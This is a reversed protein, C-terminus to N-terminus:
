FREDFDLVVFLECKLNQVSISVNQRIGEELFMVNVCPMGSCSRLVLGRSANEAERNKTFKKFERQKKHFNDTYNKRESRHSSRHM